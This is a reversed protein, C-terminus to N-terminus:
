LGHILRKRDVPSIKKAWMGGHSTGENITYLTTYRLPDVLFAVFLVGRFLVVGSTLSSSRSWRTLFPLQYKRLHFVNTPRLCETGLFLNTLLRLCIFSSSVYQPSADGFIPSIRSSIEFMWFRPGVVSCTLENWASPLTSSLAFCIVGCQVLYTVEEEYDRSWHGTIIQLSPEKTLPSRFGIWKTWVIPFFLIKMKLYRGKPLLNFANQQLGNNWGFGPASMKIDNPIGTWSCEIGLEELSLLSM